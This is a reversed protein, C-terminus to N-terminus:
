VCRSTYLLCPDRHAFPPMANYLHTVHKAGMDMAKKACDYNATTHGISIVVEDKVEQIFDFAKDVNPALTVLRIQNGSAENCKRFFSADPVSIYEGARDRICM